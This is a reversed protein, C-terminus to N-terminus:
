STTNVPAATALVLGEDELTPVVTREPGQVEADYAVGSPQPASCARWAGETLCVSYVGGDPWSCTVSSCRGPELCDSGHCTMTLAGGTGPTPAGPVYPTTQGPGPLWGSHDDNANFEVETPSYLTCGGLLGALAVACCLMRITM